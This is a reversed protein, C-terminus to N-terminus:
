IRGPAGNLVAAAHTDLAELNAKVLSDRFKKRSAADGQHAECASEIMALTGAPLSSETGVVSAKPKVLQDTDTYVLGSKARMKVFGRVTEIPQDKLFAREEKTTAKAVSAILGTKEAELNGAKLAAVDEATKRSQAALARIAGMAEAGQLGTLSELLAMADGAGARAEPEEGDDEAEAKKAAEECEAAKAKHEAAKARHKAGEAKRAEKEAKARHKEAASAEEEDGDEDGEHEDGDEDDMEAKAAQLIVLRSRLAAAAAGSAKAIEAELKLIKHELKVAM